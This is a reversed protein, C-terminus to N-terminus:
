NGYFLIMGPLVDKTNYYGTYTCKTYGQCGYSGVPNNHCFLTSMYSSFKHSPAELLQIIPDPVNWPFLSSRWDLFLQPSCGALDMFTLRGIGLRVECFKFLHEWALQSCMDTGGIM